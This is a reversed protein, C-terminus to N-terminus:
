GRVELTQNHVDVDSRMVKVLYHKDHVETVVGVFAKEKAAIVLQGDDFLAVKLTKPSKAEM